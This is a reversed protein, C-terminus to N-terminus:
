NSQTSSPSAVVQWDEASVKLGGAQAGPTRRSTPTTKPPVPGQLPTRQPAAPSPHGLKHPYTDGSDRPSRPHTHHPLSVGLHPKPDTPSAPQTGWSQVM